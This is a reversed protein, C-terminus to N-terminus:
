AEVKAAAEEQGTSGVALTSGGGVQEGGDTEMSGGVCNLLKGRWQGPAPLRRGGMAVGLSRHLGIAVDFGGKMRQALSLVGTRVDDKPMERMRGQHPIQRHGAALM